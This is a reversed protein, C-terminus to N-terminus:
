RLRRLPRRKFVVGCQECRARLDSGSAVQVTVAIDPPCSCVWAARKPARITPLDQTAISVAPCGKLGRERAWERFPSPDRVGLTAGYRTCPIGIDVATKRFWSSHYNNQSRPATGAIDEFCHLQEHIVTEAIEIETRNLLHRPNVSIEWRLGFDNRGPRYHGLVRPSEWEFCFLIPPQKIANDKWKDPVFRTWLDRSWDRIDRVVKSLEIPGHKWGQHDQLRAIARNIAEDTDPFALVTADAESPTNPHVGVSDKAPVGVDRREESSTGIRDATM